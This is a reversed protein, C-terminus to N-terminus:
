GSNERSPRALHFIDTARLYTGAGHMRAILDLQAGDIKGSAVDIIADDTVHLALVDGLLIARDPLIPVIQRLRCEFAVPSGTIRPPKVHVSPTVALGAIALEDTDPSLPASTANMAEALAFPVLNVVFDGTAEINARTDKLTGDPRSQIGVALIPPWSSLVNFFSFPAANRQGKGDQSVIWAIPRPTVVATMLRNAVAADLIAFDYHM